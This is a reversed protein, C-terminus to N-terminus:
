KNLTSENKIAVYQTVNFKATDNPANLFSFVDGTYYGNQGGGWGWDCHIWRFTPEGTKKDVAYKCGDGIWAHGKRTKLNRGGLCVINGNKIYNFVDTFVYLHIGPSPLLEFGCAQLVPVIDSIFAHTGDIDSGILPCYDANVDIGVNYLMREFLDMGQDFTYYVGYFDGPYTVNTNDPANTSSSNGLTIPKHYDHIAEIIEHAYVTESRYTFRDKSHLMINTLALPVCGVACNPHDVIVYKNWPDLQHPHVKIMPGIQRFEVPDFGPIIISDPQLTNISDVYFELKQIFNENVCENAANFSGTESFAVPYHVKESNVVIAFGQNDAYDIIYAITDSDAARSMHKRLVYDIKAPVRDGGRSLDTEDFFRQALKVARIQNLNECDINESLNDNSENEFLDDTQTCGILLTPFLLFLAFKKM